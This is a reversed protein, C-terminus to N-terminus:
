AISKVFGAGSMFRSLMVSSAKSITRPQITSKGVDMAFPWREVRSSYRQAFSAKGSGPAAFAGAAMVGISGPALLAVFARILLLGALMVPERFSM